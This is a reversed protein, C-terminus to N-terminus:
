YSPLGSPSSPSQCPSAVLFELGGGGGVWSPLEEWGRQSRTPIGADNLSDWPLPPSLRLVPFLSGRFPGASRLEGPAPALAAWGVEAGGEGGKSGGLPGDRLWLQALKALTEWTAPACPHSSPPTLFFLLLLLLAGRAGQVGNLFRGGSGAARPSRGLLSGPLVAQESRLVAGAQRRKGGPTRVRPAAGGKRGAATGGPAARLAPAVLASSDWLRQQRTRGPPPRLQPRISGAGSGLRPSNSGGGSSSAGHRPLYPSRMGPATEPALPLYGLPACGWWGQDPARALSQFFLPLFRLHSLSNEARPLNWAPVWMELGVAALNVVAQYACSM